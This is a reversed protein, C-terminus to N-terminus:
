RVLVIPRTEAFDNGQVRLLYLGAPLGAGDIRLVTRANAGVSGNFLIAVLRGSTDYLRAQITQASRVQLTATARDRFPNPYPSALVYPVGLRLTITVEPGLLSAGDAGVIRLQFRYRGAPLDALTVTYSEDQMVPLTEAVVTPDDYFQQLVEIRTAETEAGTRFTLTVDGSTETVVFDFVDAGLLFDCDPGLVWGIDRFIACTVAGPSFISEARGLFPTMLSNPDGPPFAQEDLHAISSGADFSEPAYIDVPIDGTARRVTEGDFRIPSILATGLARSPSPYRGNPDYLPRDQADRLFRDFIVPLVMGNSARIGACGFGAGVDPCEDNNGEEVIGDDYGFGDFFGLGHGIEHLVVTVFDYQGPPTRGDTGFYWNPFDSNFSAVIDPENSVLNRGALSESLAIPFWTDSRPLYPEAADIYAAGASGLVGEGLARWTAQVDIPVDSQIHTQWLDVAYQFAARPAGPFNNYTVRITSTAAATKGLPRRTHTAAVRTNADYPAAKLTHTVRWQRTAGPVTVPVEEVHGECQADHLAWLQSWPFDPASPQAAVPLALASFLALFLLRIM